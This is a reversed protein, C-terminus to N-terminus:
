NSTTKEVSSFLRASMRPMELNFLPMHLVNSLEMTFRHHPHSGIQSSSSRATSPTCKSNTRALFCM